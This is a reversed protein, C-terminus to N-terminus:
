SKTRPRRNNAQVTMTVWRCNEKCYNGNNDRRDLTLTLPREGMDEFFNEFKLWRECVTIGRGGYWKFEKVNKDFCRQKMSAWARYTSSKSMGHTCEEGIKKFNNLNCEKCKTSRGRLINHKFIITENGCDCKCLLREQGNKGKSVVSLIELSNIKKGVINIYKAM